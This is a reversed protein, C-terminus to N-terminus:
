ATCPININRCVIHNDNEAAAMAHLSPQGAPTVRVRLPVCVSQRNINVCKLEAEVRQACIRAIFPHEACDAVLPRALAAQRVQM